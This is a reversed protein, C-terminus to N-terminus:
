TQAGCDPLALAFRAYADRAAEWDARELRQLAFLSREVREAIVRFAERAALPLAPLMALERATSSPEVWDPRAAVMHGVSRTLLLHTAEDYRGEAALREADELLALSAASDPRWDPADARANRKNRRQALPGLTRLLLYIVFVALAAILVWQIVGWSAGLWRGFPSLVQGILEFLSQLFREFAGLEPPPVAPIEVPAMQIEGASRLAEWGQPASAPPTVPLPQAAATM